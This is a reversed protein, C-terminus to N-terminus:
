VIGPAYTPLGTQSGIEYPFKDEEHTHRHMQLITCCGCWFSFCIDDCYWKEGCQKAPINYRKRFEHRALTLAVVTYIYFPYWVLIGSGNTTVAAIFALIWALIVIGTMIQCTNEYGGGPLGLPNLRLRQLVQGVLIATCCWGMLCPCPCTELFSFLDNKFRGTPATNEKIFDNESPMDVEIEDGAKVGGNPM